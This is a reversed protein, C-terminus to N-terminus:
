VASGAHREKPAQLFSSARVHAVGFIRGDIRTGVTPNINLISLDLLLHQTSQTARLAVCDMVAGKRRLEGIVEVGTAHSAASVPGVEGM